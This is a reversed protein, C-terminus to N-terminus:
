RSLVYLMGAAALSSLLCILVNLVLSLRSLGPASARRLGVYAAITGALSLVPTVASAVFPMAWRTGPQWPFHSLFFYAGLALALLLYSAGTWGLRLGVVEYEGWPSERFIRSAM